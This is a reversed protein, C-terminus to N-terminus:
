AREVSQFLSDRSETRFKAFERVIWISRHQPFCMAIGNCVSVLTEWDGASITELLPRVFEAVRDPAYFHFTCLGVVLIGLLCYKM